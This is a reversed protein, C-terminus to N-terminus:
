AAAPVLQERLEALARALMRDVRSKPAGWLEAVSRVSQASYNIGYVRGLLERSQPALRGIAALLAARDEAALLLLEPEEHDAERGSYTRLADEREAHVTVRAARHDEAVPKDASAVQISPHESGVPTARRGKHAGDSVDVGARRMWCVARLCDPCKASALSREPVSDSTRHAHMLRSVLGAKRGVRNKKGATTQALAIANASSPSDFWTM